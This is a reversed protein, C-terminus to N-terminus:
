IAVELKLIGDAYGKLWRDDLKIMKLSDMAGSNGGEETSDGPGGAFEKDDGPVFAGLESADCGHQTSAYGHEEMIKESLM